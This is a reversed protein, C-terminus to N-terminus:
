LVRLGCRRARSDEARDQRTAFCYQRHQGAGVIHQLGLRAIFCYPRLWAHDALESAGSAGSQPEVEQM